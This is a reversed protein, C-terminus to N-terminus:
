WHHEGLEQSEWRIKGETCTELTPIQPHTLQSSIFKPCCVEQMKDPYGNNIGPSACAHTNSSIREYEKRSLVGYQERAYM